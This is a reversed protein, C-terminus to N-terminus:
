NGGLINNKKRASQPTINRTQCKTMILTLAAATHGEAAQKLHRHALTAKTVPVAIRLCIRLQKRTHNLTDDLGIPKGEDTFAFKELGGHKFILYEADLVCSQTLAEKLAVTKTVDALKKKEAAIDDDYKKQLDEFDKQLKEPDKGDYKKITTQLETITENAKQLEGDKATTKAKEAEIDKGNEAMVGDVVTKIKDEDIGAEKLLKEIYETKM